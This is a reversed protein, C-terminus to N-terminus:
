SNFNELILSAKNKNICIDLSDKISTKGQIRAKIITGEEIELEGYLSGNVEPYIKILKGKILFGECNDESEVISIDNSRLALYGDKEQIDSFINAHKKVDSLKIFNDFGLYIAAELVKPDRLAKDPDGLYLMKGNKMFFVDTAIKLLNSANQSVIITSLGIRAVTRDLLDIANVFSQPDLNSFPEDLLLLDPLIALARALAVRQKQGGSLISVKKNLLDEIKLERALNLVRENRENLPIKRVKLGFEINERVTMNEFLAYSQPVYGINRKETPLKTIERGNLIINGRKADILGLIVKLLTSKGAGNPGIILGVGNKKLNLNIPGLHFGGLYAELGIVDLSNDSLRIGGEM